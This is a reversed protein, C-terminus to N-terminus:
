GRLRAQDCLAARISPDALLQEFYAITHVLGEKLPTRPTWGLVKLARSIDPQRQKPDDQPLSRHVIRSRSNTLEIVQRALELITFETPNGLNIPGTVVAPTHMLRTLGDVLDAVYCFSRTQSGDGYVTIDRGLLAQVVFNSVVRGDNPHM